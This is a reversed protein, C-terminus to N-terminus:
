VEQSESCIDGNDCECLILLYFSLSLFPETGIEHNSVLWYEYGIRVSLVTYLLSIKSLM